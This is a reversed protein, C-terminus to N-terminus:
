PCKKRPWARLPETMARDVSWGLALRAGLRGTPLGQVVEWQAITKSQGNWAIFRNRTTNNMQTISDTFRCNEPEYDGDVDIRDITLGPAYGNEHCWQYFVRCDKMWADCIKIGRGGYNPYRKDKKYYCRNRMNGILDKLKRAHPYPVRRADRGIRGNNIAQEISGCGCSKTSGVTLSGGKVVSQKGCDCRCLWYAGNKSHSYSVAVLRGYRVGTRDLM